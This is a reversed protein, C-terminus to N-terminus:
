VIDPSGVSQLLVELLDVAEHTKGVGKSEIGESLMQLCYPCSVGIKEAGTALFQETRQDSIRTGGEEMWLHGGGAGCCFGKERNHPAMEVLKLGPIANAISRPPDYVGNHRGLYCSDHYALTTEVTKLPRLRGTKILEDIYQTYHLVEFNGDFQPYENRMTNFCHPCITVIRKVNYNKLTEINKSALVQYLYENGLRRAPDGSCTEENGLIAFNVKAARLITVMAKPISQSRQELAGTCGVWFLIEFDTQDSVHKVELGDAWDLRSYTSGRWPHGRQEINQLVAMVQPPMEAKEMVLHRRMDVISDIHEVGVPCEQVCAGCTVCDWIAEPPNADGIVEATPPSGQLVRPGQEVLYEKINEVIHMPSLIKGTLNAPCSDTCRGCVACAYGDLLEKWTFDQIRGAGFSEVTELDRIPDLVGMPGLRRLFANIPSAVIHMHKSFPIYIAFGLVTLLHLWWFVGQM